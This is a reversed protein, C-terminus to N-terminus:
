SICYTTCVYRNRVDCWVKLMRLILSKCPCSSLYYYVHHVIIKHNELLMRFTNYLKRAFFAFIQVDSRILLIANWTFCSVVREASTDSVVVPFLQWRSERNLDLAEGNWVVIWHISVIAIIAFLFVDVTCPSCFFFM